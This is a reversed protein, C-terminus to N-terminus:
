RVIGLLVIGFGALWGLLPEMQKNEERSEYYLAYGPVIACLLGERASKKFAKVAIVDQCILMILFGGLVMYTNM